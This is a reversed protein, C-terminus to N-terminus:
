HAGMVAKILGKTIPVFWIASLVLLVFNAFPYQYRELPSVMDWTTTPNSQVDTYFVYLWYPFLMLRFFVFSLWLLFGCVIYMKGRPLGLYQFTLITNLFVNTIECLGGLCAFYHMRSTYLMTGLGVCTLAHHVVYQLVMSMTCDKSFWLVPLHVVDEACTLLMNIYATTTTAHWRSEVNDGLVYVSHLSCVVLVPVFLLHFYLLLLNVWHKDKPTTKFTYPLLLLHVVIVGCMAWSLHMLQQDSADM